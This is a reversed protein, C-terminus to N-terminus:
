QQGYSDSTKLIWKVETEIGDVTALLSCVYTGKTLGSIEMTTVVTGSASNIGTTVSSTVDTGNKYVELGTSANVSVSTAGTFSVSYPTSARQGQYVAEEVVWRGDQEDDSAACDVQLKYEEDIGDLTVLVSLIYTQGGSLGTLSKLTIRNGSYSNSGTTVSSTVDTSGKYVVLASSDVTASTAWPFQISLPITEREGIVIPSELIWKNDM